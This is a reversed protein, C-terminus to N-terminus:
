PSGVRRVFSRERPCAYPTHAAVKAILSDEYAVETRQNEVDTLYAALRKYLQNLFAIQATIMLSGIMAGNDRVFTGEYKSSQAWLMQYTLITLTITVTCACLVILIASGILYVKCRDKIDMVLAEGASDDMVFLDGAAFFGKKKSGRRM